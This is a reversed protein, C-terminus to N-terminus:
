LKPGGRFDAAVAGVHDLWQSVGGYHKVISWQVKEWKGGAVRYNAVGVQHKPKKIYVDSGSVFIQVTMFYEPNDSPTASEWKQRAFEALVNCPKKQITTFKM